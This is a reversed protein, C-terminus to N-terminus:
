VKDTITKRTYLVSFIKSVAAGATRENKELKTPKKFLIVSNFNFNLNCNLEIM